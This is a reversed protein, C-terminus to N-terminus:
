DNIVIKRNLVESGMQTSLVYVGPTSIRVEKRWTRENEMPEHEWVIRGLNDVISVKVKELLANDIDITFLERAPNPFVQVASPAGHYGIIIVKSYEFTADDDIQRLRYYNSGVMPSPDVLDYHNIENAAGQPDVFGIVQWDRGNASKQVEFGANNIENATMWNLLISKDALQGNFEMFEVPLASRDGQRSVIPVYGIELGAPPTVILGADLGVLTGGTPAPLYEDSSSWNTHIMEVRNQLAVRMDAPLNAHVIAPQDVFRYWYYTLHTGDGISVTFPGAAPGPSNWPSNKSFLHSDPELPTLYSLEDNRPTTEPETSLLGSSAPVEAMPIAEWQNAESLKYFEPMKFGTNVEEIINTNWEYIAAKRDTSMKIKAYDNQHIPFDLEPGEGTYIAADVAESDMNDIAFDLQITGTPNLQTSPAPGGNFWSEVENWKADRSYISIDRIIESSNDTTKPYVPPLTRAYADGANDVGIVAPSASFEQAFSLGPDSPRSDLFLGEYTPDDLVTAAWFTPIFFAVPGKFNAANLFLTWCQNGTEWNVGNTVSMPDTLPLPHYGYGLFEGNAGQEMNLGDPPWLLNPSLQAVGYKGGPTDWDRHGDARHDTSGAGPGNAAADFSHAVGGMIFKPINTAFRTDGWWGLGGEITNYFDTPTDGTHRPAVWTGQGTQFNEWGPYQEMFPWVASYFSYGAGFTNDNVPETNFYNFGYGSGQFAGAEGNPEDPDDVSGVELCVNDLFVSADNNRFSFEIAGNTITAENHTFSLTYSEKTTGLSVAGRFYETFPAENLSIILEISRPAAAYADFNITYSEEMSYTFAGRAIGADVENINEFAAEGNTSSADSGWTWWGDLNEEFQGNTILECSVIPAGACNCTGDEVDNTTLPNGDDCPTGANSCGPVGLLVNMRRGMQDGIRLYSEANNNWHHLFDPEPSLSADRYFPRTDVYAVKDHGEYLAARIQAPVIQTQLNHVWTGEPELETGGNGALGIVFPMNPVNLDTRVDSILNILNQEYEDMFAQEDCDNWGQLWAMGAIEVNGGTFQPFNTPINDIAEAIDALMQSYYAGTTGGSSPPRFDVALSKGGWCTKIILIQDDTEPGLLNGFGYEPGIHNDSYGFGVTLEGTLLESDDNDYHVWVDERTSWSGDASRVYDFEAAGGNDMFHTLTGNINAPSIDGHGQMNSQGAMIFVKINQGQLSGLMITMLVLFLTSIQISKKIKM